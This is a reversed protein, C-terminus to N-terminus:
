AAGGDVIQPNWRKRDYEFREVPPQPEGARKLRQRLNRVKRMLDDHEAQTVKTQISITKLATMRRDGENAWDLIYDFPDVIFGCKECTVKREVSDVVVQKHIGGCEYKGTAAKKKIAIERAIDENLPVVNTPESPPEPEIVVSLGKLRM